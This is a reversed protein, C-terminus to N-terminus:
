QCFYLFFERTFLYGIKALMALYVLTVKNVANELASATPKCILYFSPFYYNSRGEWFSQLIAHCVHLVNCIRLLFLFFHFFVQERFAIFLGGYAYAEPSYFM